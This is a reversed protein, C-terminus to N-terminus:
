LVELKKEPVWFDGTNDRVLAKGNEIELIEVISTLYLDNHAFRKDPDVYEQESTTIVETVRAIKKKKAKEKM